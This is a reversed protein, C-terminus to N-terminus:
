DALAADIKTALSDLEKNLLPNHTNGYIASDTAYTLLCMAMFDQDDKGAYQNRLEKIKEEALKVAKRVAEEDKPNIRIRYSRGALWVNVPILDQEEM